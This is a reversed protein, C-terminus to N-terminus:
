WILIIGAAVSQVIQAGVLIYFLKAEKIYENRVFITTYQNSALDQKQQYTLNNSNDKIETYNQHYTNNINMYNHTFLVAMGISALVVFVQITVYIWRLFRKHSFLTLAILFNLALVVIYVRHYRAKNFYSLGLIALETLVIVLASWKFRRKEKVKAVEKQPHHTTHPQPPLSLLADIDEEEPKPQPKEQIVPSPQTIQPQYDEAPKSPIIDSIVQRRSHRNYGPSNPDFTRGTLKVNRLDINRDDM